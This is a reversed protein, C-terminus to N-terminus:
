SQAARHTLDTVPLDSSRFIPVPVSATPGWSSNRAARGWGRRGVEHELAEPTDGWSGFDETRGSRGTFSIASSMANSEVHKRARRTENEYCSAPLAKPGGMGTSPKRRSSRKQQGATPRLGASM